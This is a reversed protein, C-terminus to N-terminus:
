GERLIADSGEDQLAFAQIEMVAVPGTAGFAHLVDEGGEEGIGFGSKWFSCDRVAIFLEKRRLLRVLNAARFGCTSIVTEGRGRRCGTM